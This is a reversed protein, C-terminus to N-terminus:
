ATGRSLRHPLARRFLAIDESSFARLVVVLAMYVIPAVVVLVVLGAVQGLLAVVVGMVVSALVFRWVPRVIRVPTGDRHVRVALQVVSVVYSAVLALAAGKEGLLVTLPYAIALRIVTTVAYVHLVAGQEGRASLVRWLVAQLAYLAVSVAAIRLVPVAPGFGQGYVTDIIPRAAFILGTTLPLALALLYKISRDQLSRARGDRLHFSRSLFPFVNVMYSAPLFNWFDVLKLAATYYGVQSQTGVLSLIIIEPRSAAANILSNGAFPRIDVMLSRMFGRDFDARIPTIYRHILVFYVFTVAYEVVVFAVVLSVVGHGTGLLLVSTGILAVTSGLTALTEFEVREHAVFVAEQVTNLIGPLLALIVLELSRTLEPSYSLHPIVIWGGATCVLAVGGALLSSHFLYASTRSKNKAIERVLLNTTGSEAATWILGYYAIATAYVGLGSAGLQRSLILTIVLNGVREIIRAAGLVTTNRAIRRAHTM